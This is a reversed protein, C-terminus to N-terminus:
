VVSLGLGSRQIDAISRDDIEWAALFEVFHAANVIFVTHEKVAALWKGPPSDADRQQSSPHVSLQKRFRVHPVEVFEADPIEGDSLGIARADFRAVHLSATTVIVSAYMRVNVSYPGEERALAETAAVLEAAVPEITQRGKSGGGHITCFECQPSAPDLPVDWWGGLNNMRDTLWLKAQRRSAPEGSGSLFLWSADRVRKCEVALVTTQADNELVLDLFGGDGSGPDKWAHEAYLVGWRNRGPGAGQQRQQMVAQAIAIQLPYGSCNLTKLMEQQDESEAM